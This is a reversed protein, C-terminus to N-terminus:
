RLPTYSPSDSHNTGCLAGASTRTSQRVPFAVAYAEHGSTTDDRPLEANKSPTKSPCERQSTGHFAPATTRTSPLCVHVVVEDCVAVWILGVLVIDELVDPLLEGDATDMDNLWVDDRLTVVMCSRRGSMAMDSVWDWDSDGVEATGDVPLKLQVEVKAVTEAVAARKTGWVRSDDSGWAMLAATTAAANTAATAAGTLEVPDICRARVSTPM